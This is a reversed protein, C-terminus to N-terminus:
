LTRSKMPEVQVEKRTYSCRWVGDDTRVMEIRETKGNKHTDKEQM